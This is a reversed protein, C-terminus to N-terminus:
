GTYRLSCFASFFTGRRQVSSADLRQPVIFFGKACPSVPSPLLCAVPLRSPPPSLWENCVTPGVMEAERFLPGPSRFNTEGAVPVFCAFMPSLLEASRQLLPFSERDLVQRQRCHSSSQLRKPRTRPSSTVAAPFPFRDFHLLMPPLSSASAVELGGASCAPTRSKGREEVREDM